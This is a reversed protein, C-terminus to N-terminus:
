VLLCHTQFINKDKIIACPCINIASVILLQFFQFNFVFVLSFQEVYINNVYQIKHFNFLLEIFFM